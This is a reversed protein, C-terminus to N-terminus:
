IVPIDALDFYRPIVREFCIAREIRAGTSHEWNPMFYVADAETLMIRLADLLYENYSRGPTQDVMAYPDLAVHGKWEIRAAAEAFNAEAEEPPLATIAGAIYIRLQAM